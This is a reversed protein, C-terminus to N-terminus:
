LLNKFFDNLYQITIREYKYFPNHGCNSITKKIFPVKLKNKLVELQNITGYPDNLGQIGIIPVEINQIINTINWNKFGNDLWVRCWGYFANDVNKHYKSLKSKLQGKEYEIVTKKIASINENEIYFHPALLAAGQLNQNINLSCHIAAITAGDSHGVIFYKNIKLKKIILPLYIKAEITMYNLPRPLDVSSSNGYGFRSYALVNLKTIKHIIRPIEKWMSISGLGEHLLIIVPIKNNFDGVTLIEISKNEITIQFLKTKNKM